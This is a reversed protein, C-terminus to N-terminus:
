LMVAYNQVFFFHLVRLVHLQAVLSLFRLAIDRISSLMSLPVSLEEANLAIMM